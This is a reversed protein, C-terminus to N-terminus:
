PRGCVNRRFGDVDLSVFRCFAGAPTSTPVLLVPARLEVDTLPAIGYSLKPDSRWRRTGDILQDFGLPALQIELSRRPTPLADEVRLPRNSDLNYYETQSAAVRSIVVALLIGLAARIVSARWRSGNTPLKSGNM